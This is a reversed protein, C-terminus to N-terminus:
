LNTNKLKKELSVNIKPFALGTILTCLTSLSFSHNLIQIFNILLNLLVFLKPPPPNLVVFQYNLPHLPLM